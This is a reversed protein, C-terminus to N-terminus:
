YFIIKVSFADDSEIYSNSVSLYLEDGSGSIMLQSEEPKVEKVGTFIQTDNVDIKNNNNPAFDEGLQNNIGYKGILMAKLGRNNNFYKVVDLLSKSGLIESDVDDYDDFTSDLEFDSVKYLNKFQIKRRGNADKEITQANGNFVVEIYGTPYANKAEDIEGSEISTEKSYGLKLYVLLGVIFLVIIIIYKM